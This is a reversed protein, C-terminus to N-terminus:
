KLLEKIKEWLTSPDSGEKRRIRAVGMMGAMAEAEGVYDIVVPVPTRSSERSVLAVDKGFDAIADMLWNLEDAICYMLLVTRCAHFVVQRSKREIQIQSVEGQAPAKLPLLVCDNTCIDNKWREFQDLAHGPVEMYALLSQGAGSGSDCSKLYEIVADALEPITHEPIEGLSEVFRKYTPDGALADLPIKSDRWLFRQISHQQACENLQQVRGMEEGEERVAVFGILQVFARAISLAQEQDQQTFHEIRTEKAPLLMCGKEKLLARIEQCFAQVGETGPVVLVPWSTIELPMGAEAGDGTTRPTPHKKRIEDLRTAMASALETLSDVFQQQTSSAEPKVWGFPRAARGKAEECFPFGLVTEGFGDKLFDPWDEGQTAMARVVFVNEISDGRGKIENEFWEREKKCWESSLYNRTMIILLTASTEVEQKLTETLAVNGSLKADYWVKIPQGQVELSLGIHEKFKKILARTWAKLDSDEGSEPLIGHSYSVFVDHEFGAGTYSKQTVNNTMM